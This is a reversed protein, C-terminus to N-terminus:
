IILAVMLASMMNALSSALVTLLGLETLWARREPVLAGIGGVQIGICSFNSFGCLAYTMIAATREGLGMTVMKSFAVLENITVKTGLLEAAYSAETGQLGLLYAFPSFLYSFILDLGL